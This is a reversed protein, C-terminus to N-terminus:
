DSYTEFTVVAGDRGEWRVTLRADDIRGLTPPVIALTLGEPSEYVGDAGSGPGYVQRRRDGHLTRLWPRAEARPVRFSGKWTSEFLPDDTETCDEGAVHPPLKWGIAAM